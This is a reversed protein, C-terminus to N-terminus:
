IGTKNQSTPRLPWTTKSKNAEVALKIKEVNQSSFRIKGIVISSNPVNWNVRQSLFQGKLLM